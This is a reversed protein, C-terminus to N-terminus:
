GLRNAALLLVAPIADATLYFLFIKLDNIRGPVLGLLVSYALFLSEVVYIVWFFV